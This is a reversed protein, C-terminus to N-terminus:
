IVSLTKMVIINILVFGATCSAEPRNFQLCLVAARSAGDVFLVKCHTQRSAIVSTLIWRVCHPVIRVASRSKM